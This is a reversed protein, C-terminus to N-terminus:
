RAARASPGLKPQARHRAGIITQAGTRTARQRSAHETRM